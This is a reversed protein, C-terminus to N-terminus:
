VLHAGRRHDTIQLVLAIPSRHQDARARRGTCAVHDLAVQLNDTVGRCGCYIPVRDAPAQLVLVIDPRRLNEAVDNCRRQLALAVGRDRATSVGCERFLPLTCFELSATAPYSRPVAM